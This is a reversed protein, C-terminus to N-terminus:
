EAKTIIPLCGDNDIITSAFSAEAVALWSRKEPIWDKSTTIEKGKPMAFGVSRKHFALATNFIKDEKVGSPLGGEVMDSIMVFEFGLFHKIEGKELSKLTVFDSSTSDTESLLQELQDATHLIYREGMPVSKKDFIKKAKRLMTATLGLTADGIATTTTKAISDIITQNLRRAIADASLESAIVGEDWTFEYDKPKDMYVPAEYSEFTAMVREYGPDGATVDAYPNHKSAILKGVKNFYISKGIINGKSYVKDRLFFNQSYTRKVESDYALEWMNDNESRSM